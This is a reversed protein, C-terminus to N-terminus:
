FKQHGFTFFPDDTPVFNCSRGIELGDEGALWYLYSADFFLDATGDASTECRCERLCIIDPLVSDKRSRREACFVSARRAELLHFALIAHLM